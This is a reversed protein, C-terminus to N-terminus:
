WDWRTQDESLSSETAKHITRHACPVTAVAVRCHRLVMGYRREIRDHNDRVRHVSPIPRVPGDDVTATRLRPWKLTDIDSSHCIELRAAGRSPDLRWVRRAPWLDVRRIPRTPHAIPWDGLRPVFYLWSLTTTKPWSCCDSPLPSDLMPPLRPHTGVTWEVVMRCPHRM